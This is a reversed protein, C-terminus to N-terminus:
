AEKLMVDDSVDRVFLPEVGLSEVDAALAFADPESVMEGAAGFVRGLLSADSTSNL